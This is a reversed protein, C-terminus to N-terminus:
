KPHKGDPLYEASGVRAGKLQVEYRTAGNEVVREYRTVTAKPFEKAIAAAVPAPLDAAAIQEELVAIVGDPRYIIDRTKGADVSEVEYVDKGALKEKTVNKITANPYAAKFASEVAPPLQVKAAKQQAPPKAGGQRALAPSAALLVALSVSIVPLKRMFM